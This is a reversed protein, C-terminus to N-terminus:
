TGSRRTTCSAASRRGSRGLATMQEPSRAGVLVELGGAVLQVHPPFRRRRTAASTPAWAFCGATPTSRSATRRRTGCCSDGGAPDLDALVARRPALAALGVAFTTV